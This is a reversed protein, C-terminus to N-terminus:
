MQMAARVTKGVARGLADGEPAEARTKIRFHLKTFGFGGLSNHNSRPMQRGFSIERRWPAIDVAEANWGEPKAPGTAGDRNLVCVAHDGGTVELVEVPLHGNVSLWAFAMAARGACNRCRTQHALLGRFPEKEIDTMRADAYRIDTRLARKGNVCPCASSKQRRTLLLM